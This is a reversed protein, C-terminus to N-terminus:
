EARKVLLIKGAVMEEYFGPDHLARSLVFGQSSARILFRLALAGLFVAIGIFLYGSLALAVGLGLLPLLFFPLMLRGSVLRAAQTRDVTVQVIGEQYARM